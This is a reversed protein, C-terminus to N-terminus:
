RRDESRGRLDRSVRALELLLAELRREYEAAPLTAKRARLQVVERELSDRRAELAALTSDAPAPARADLFITAALAGDKATAGPELAGVGDGDDDLLAHETLLRQDREYERAVEQRAYEFAELVSLRDNKDLDATGSALAQAFYRGFHTEDREVGSRTATIIVRRPGSLAPIWAGSASAVNVIALLHALAPATLDPGPLNLRPEGGAASGHGILVLVIVSHPAAEGALRHLAASVADATSRAEIRRDRSPDEALFTIHDARIGLRSGSAVIASAMRFFAERYAPEGGLGSVVVLHTQAGLPAAWLLAGLTWAKV